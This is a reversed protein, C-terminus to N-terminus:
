FGNYNYSSTVTTEYENTTVCYKSLIHTLLTPLQYFRIFLWKLYREKKTVRIKLTKAFYLFFTEHPSSRKRKRRRDQGEKKRDM